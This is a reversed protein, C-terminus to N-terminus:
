DKSFCFTKRDSFNDKVNAANGQGGEGQGGQGRGQVFNSYKLGVGSFIGQRLYPAYDL